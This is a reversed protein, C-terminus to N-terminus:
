RDVYRAALSDFSVIIMRGHKSEGMPTVVGTTELTPVLILPKEHTVIVPASTFIVKPRKSLKDPTSPRPRGGNASPTVSFGKTMTRFLVTPIGFIGLVM